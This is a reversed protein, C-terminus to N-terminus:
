SIALFLLKIFYLSLDSHLYSFGQKMEGRKEKQKTRYHPLTNMKKQHIAFYLLNLLKFLVWNNDWLKQLHSIQTSQLLVKYLMEGSLRM